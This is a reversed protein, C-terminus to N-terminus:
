KGSERLEAEIVEGLIRIGERIQDDDAFSYSLRLTNTGKDTVYCARGPLYEVGRERAMPVMRVTDIGDPLTVWIFFGGDPETWTTGEPMHERLEELMIDRRTKYIERLEEIHRNLHVPIWEAAVYSAFIGTGGDTKLIALKTIIEPNAVVWGLRMGAGMVKSLTGLQITRGSDDLAYIPPIFDGSFRLDYYADDELIVTEYEQALEVLRQRRELTTTVGTPNQFNPIVYIFKARKGEAKLGALMQELVEVNTGHEDIPVPLAVAGAHRFGVVAGSWTPEETMVIDGRDIFADIVLQVAQSAGATILLNQRTINLQQDRNLKGVLVDILEPAGTVPGYQLAKETAHELARATAEAVASGPLSGPDPFGYTFSIKANIEDSMEMRPKSPLGKARVSYLDSFPSATTAAKAM